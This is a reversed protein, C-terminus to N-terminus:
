GGSAQQYLGCPPQCLIASMFRRYASGLFDEGSTYLCRGGCVLYVYCQNSQYQYIRYTDLYVKHETKEAKRVKYLDKRAGMLYEGEPVYAM